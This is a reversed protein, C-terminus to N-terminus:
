RASHALQGPRRQRPRRSTKERRGAVLVGGARMAIAVLARDRAREYARRRFRQQGKASDQEFAAWRALALAADPEKAAFTRCLSLACPEAGAPANCGHRPPCCRRM